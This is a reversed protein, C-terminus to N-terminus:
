HEVAKRLEAVLTPLEDGAAALLAARHDREYDLVLRNRRAIVNRWPIAPHGAQCAPSVRRAAEGLVDFCRELARMGVTGPSADTGLNGTELIQTIECAVSLMDWLRARDGGKSPRPGFDAGQVVPEVAGVQSPPLGTDVGQLGAGIGELARFIKGIEATKKGREFESLFRMGVGAKRSLMALTM